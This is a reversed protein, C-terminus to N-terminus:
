RAHPPMTAPTIGEREGAGKVGVTASLASGPTMLAPTLGAVETATAILFTPRAGLRPM